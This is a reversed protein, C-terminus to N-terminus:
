KPEGQLIFSAWFHPNQWRNDKIMKIQAERLAAAPSLKKGDLMECYFQAMLEATAEDNVNWLSVAVRKAGAYMFGRTMGVLGEGKIEKGLGTKCGSLVVLEAPLKLNYIDGVRLFGDQDKGTEDFLSLVIGSLEPNENNIFGHTAFHVYRYDSLGSSMAARRNAEFDLLKEKQGAPVFSSIMEAERRTFPLRPLELGDRTIFEDDAGRTRNKAVAVFDTKNEPKSKNKGALTKFREDEKDFIPDALIALTKPALPRERTERRLISLASASPLNVIENTEVLFRDASKRNAIQPKRNGDEFSSINLAAFPIYQLAGDTVVLLRKNSLYPAAPSLIMRSLEGSFKQLNSDARFIRDERETATEFKIQRTRATLSDYFQRATKEIESRAPLQITQFDDKTVVWLFSKTEGLAYELLVSDADLVQTRIEEVSLTKPQTLASYRPSSARINTQIQEYEARIQEIENKLKQTDETKSKGSLVKTLNELRASLLNKLETEKALLKEDIGQRVDSNSEALLNLLGRAKARENAALALAAYNKNPELQHRQMLIEVYSAYFNQLNASFSDRLEATQVRSRIM